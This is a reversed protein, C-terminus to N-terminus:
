RNPQHRRPYEGPPMGTNRRFARYFSELNEFGCEEAIAKINDSGSALRIRALRLRYNLLYQHPSSNLYRSFLAYLYPESVGAKQAMDRVSVALVSDERLLQLARSLAPPYTAARTRREGIYAEWYIRRHMYDCLIQRDITEDHFRRVMEDVFDDLAFEDAWTTIRPLVRQDRAVGFCVSLCRYPAEPPTRSVTEEGAVHWFIAGRGFEAEEGNPLTFFVKGDTLIEVVEEGPLVPRPLIVRNAPARFFGTSILSIPTNIPGM